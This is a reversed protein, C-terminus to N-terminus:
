VIQYAGKKQPLRANGNTEVENDFTHKKLAEM